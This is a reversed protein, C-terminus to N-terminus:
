RRGTHTSTSPGSCKCPFQQFHRAVRTVGGVPAFVLELLGVKGPRGVGLGEVPTEFAAFDPPLDPLTYYRPDDRRTAVADPYPTLLTM